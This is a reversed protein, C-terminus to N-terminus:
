VEFEKKRRLIMGTGCQALLRLEFPYTRCVNYVEQIAKDKALSEDEAEVKMEWAHARQLTPIPELGHEQLRELIEKEMGEKTKHFEVVILVNFAQTM